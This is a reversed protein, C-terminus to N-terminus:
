LDFKEKLHLENDMTIATITRVYPRIKFFEIIYDLENQCEYPYIFVSKQFEGFGLKRLTVRLAERATKRKEPIDFLVLRWMKDWHAPQKIKMTEINFTIAKRRGKDTLVITVLGDSNEKEMILKSKYLSRIAQHLARRNIKDWEQGVGKIVRFYQSPSRALALGVGGWLLLLIKQQNHGLGGGLKNM